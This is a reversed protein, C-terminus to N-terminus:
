FSIREAKCAKPISRNKEYSIFLCKWIPNQHHLFSLPNVICDMLLVFYGVILQEPVIYIDLYNCVANGHSAM